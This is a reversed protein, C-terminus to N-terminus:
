GGRSAWRDLIRNPVIWKVLPYPKPEAAFSIAKESEGRESENLATASFSSSREKGKPYPKARNASVGRKAMVPECVLGRESENLATASYSSSRETVGIQM